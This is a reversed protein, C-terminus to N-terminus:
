TYFAKVFSYNYLWGGFEERVPIIGGDLCRCIKKQPDASVHSYRTLRNTQGKPLVRRFRWQPNISTCDASKVRLVCAVQDRQVQGSQAVRLCQDRGHCVFQRM